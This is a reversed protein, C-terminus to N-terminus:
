HAAHLFSNATRHAQVACACHVSTLNLCGSTILSHRGSCTHLAPSSDCVAQVASPTLATCQSINLTRLGDEDNRSKVSGWMRSNMKSQALSYMARDTINQCYYLGLSRLHPCRNALAIVSDDTIQVCGCLDLIRLDPCGVALSMVGVDGVNECWGLNLCQLQNCYNGIAQLATDSAAKVCGCLNLIKLKRCFSALYALASDSFASCGSINLKVLNPCGLALAYLSCDSLKFSKSLDLIQLDHCFDAITEVANDELQPKDQRLILTQLKTFKPALSLVLSNMDKSCWSLSLRTLGLCISDRWGRCVGSAKIVAKDDLLSLIQLLLEMPIDKWETIVGRELQLGKGKQGGNGSGALMMLKEFCLNFDEARLNEKGVM